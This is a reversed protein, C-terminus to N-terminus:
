LRNADRVAVQSPYHDMLRDVAKQADWPREVVGTATGHWLVARTAPDLFEVVIANPEARYDVLFDPVVGVRAPIYGKSVLDQTLEDRVQLAAPLEATAPAPPAAFAFIRLKNLNAHPAPTARVQTHSCGAALLSALAYAALKM